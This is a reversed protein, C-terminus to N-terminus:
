CPVEIPLSALFETKKRVEVKDITLNHVVVQNPRPKYREEFGKETDLFVSCQQFLPILYFKQDEFESLYSTLTGDKNMESFDMHMIKVM